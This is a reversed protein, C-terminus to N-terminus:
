EFQRSSNNAQHMMVLPEGRGADRYHIQGYPGSAYGRTMLSPAASATGALPWTCAALAIRRRSLM